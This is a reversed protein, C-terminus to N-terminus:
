IVKTNAEIKELLEITYDLWADFKAASGLPAVLIKDKPSAM